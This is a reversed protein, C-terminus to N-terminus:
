AARSGGKAHHAFMNMLDGSTIVRPTEGEALPRAGGYSRLTIDVKDAAARARLAGVTLAERKLFKFPDFNFFRMANGHSIKNIQSETLGNLTEWLREPVYPWLSDSHPYDCEYAIM